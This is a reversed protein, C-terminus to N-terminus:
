VFSMFSYMEEKSSLGFCLSVLTNSYCHLVYYEINYQINSYYTNNASNNNKDPLAIVYTVWAHITLRTTTLHM